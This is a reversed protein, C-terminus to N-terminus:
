HLMKSMMARKCRERETNGHMLEVSEGLIKREKGNKMEM